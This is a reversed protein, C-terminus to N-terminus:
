EDGDTLEKITKQFVKGGTKGNLVAGLMQFFVVSESALMHNIRRRVIDAEVWVMGIPYRRAATHGEALLM